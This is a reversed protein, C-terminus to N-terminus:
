SHAEHKFDAFTFSPECVGKSGTIPSASAPPDSSVTFKLDAQAVYHPSVMVFGFSLPRCLQTHLHIHSKTAFWLSGYGEYTVLQKVLEKNKELDGQVLSLSMMFLVVFLSRCCACLAPECM